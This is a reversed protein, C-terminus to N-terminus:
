YDFIDCKTPFADPPLMAFRDKNRVCNFALLHRSFDDAFLLLVRLRFEDINFFARGMAYFRPTWIEAAAPAASILVDTIFMLQRYFPALDAVSQLANTFELVSREPRDDRGGLLVRIATADGHVRLLAHDTKKSAIRMLQNIDLM